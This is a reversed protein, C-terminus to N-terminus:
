DGEKVLVRSGQVLNISSLGQGTGRCSSFVCVALVGTHMSLIPGYYVRGGLVSCVPCASCCFATTWFWRQEQGHLGSVQLEQGFENRWHGEPKEEWSSSRLAQLTFCLDFPFPTKSYNFIVSATQFSNSFSPATSQQSVLPSLESGPDWTHTVLCLSLSHLSHGQSIGITM